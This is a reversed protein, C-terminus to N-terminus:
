KKVLYEAGICKGSKRCSDFFRAYEVADRMRDYIKYNISEFWLTQVSM